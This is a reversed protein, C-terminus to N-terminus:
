KPSILMLFPKNNQGPLDRSLFIATAQTQLKGAAVALKTLKRRVEPNGLSTLRSERIHRSFIPQFIIFLLLFMSIKLVIYYNNIFHRNHLIINYLIINFTILLLFYQRSIVSSIISFFITLSKNNNNNNGPLPFDPSRQKPQQRRGSGVRILLLLHISQQQQTLINVDRHILFVSIYIKERGCRSDQWKELEFWISENYIKIYIWAYQLFIIM